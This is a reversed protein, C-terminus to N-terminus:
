PVHNNHLYYAIGGLACGVLWSAWAGKVFFPFVVMAAGVAMNPFHLTKKAHVFLASGIVGFVFSAMLSGFSFDLGFPNDM